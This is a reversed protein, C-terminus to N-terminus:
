EQELTQQVKISNFLHNPNLPMKLVCTSAIDFIGHSESTVMRNEM